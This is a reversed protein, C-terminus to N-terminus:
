TIAVPDRHTIDRAAEGALRGRSDGGGELAHKGVARLRRCDRGPVRGLVAVRLPDRRALHPRRPAVPVPLDRGRPCPIPRAGRAIQWRADERRGHRGRSGARPAADVPKFFLLPSYWLWGLIFVAVAAVFVALYTVNAM